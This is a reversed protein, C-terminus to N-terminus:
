MALQSSELIVRMECILSYLGGTSFKQFDEEWVRGWSPVFTGGGVKDVWSEVGRTLSYASYAEEVYHGKQHSSINPYCRLSKEM